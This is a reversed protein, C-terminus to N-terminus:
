AWHGLPLTNRKWAVPRSKLGRAPLTSEPKKGKLQEIFSYWAQKPVLYQRNQLLLGGSQFMQEHVEAGLDRISLHDFYAKTRM